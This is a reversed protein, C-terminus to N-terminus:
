CKASMSQQEVPHEFKYNEVSFRFPELKEVVKATMRYATANVITRLTYNLKSAIIYM